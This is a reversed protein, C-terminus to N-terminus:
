SPTSCCSGEAKCAARERVPRDEKKEKGHRAALLNFEHRHVVIKMGSLGGRFANERAKGTQTVACSSGWQQMLVRRKEFLDSRRYAAEVKNGVTHALAAEAVQHSV